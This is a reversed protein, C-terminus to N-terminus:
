RWHGDVWYWGRHEHYWRGQVWTARAHPRREWRGPAWAYAAGDWRYYGTIWIFDPGPREREVIVERRPEPPGVRVWVVGVGPRPLPGCAALLTVLLTGLALRMTTASVKM